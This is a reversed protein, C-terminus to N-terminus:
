VKAAALQLWELPRPRFRLERKAKENSAGRLRTAYYITDAGLTALAEEETIRPPEPAGAARAFAPLWVHQPAPDGDVVNYAGPACQLAAVTAAAADEIHVFSWVGQGKGIVPVHGQRVQEGMDGERTYWTGPGYFFGYRLAVCEV